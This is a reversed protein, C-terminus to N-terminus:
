YQEKSYDAGLWKESLKKLTGDDIIEKLAKDIDDSLTQENKNFMFFVKANSLM